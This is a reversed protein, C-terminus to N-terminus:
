SFHTAGNLKVWGTTLIPLLQGPYMDGRSRFIICAILLILLLLAIIIMLVIFWGSSAHVLYDDGTCEVSPAVNVVAVVVDNNNPQM